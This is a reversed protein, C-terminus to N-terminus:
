GLEVDMATAVTAFDEAAVEFLGRRFPDGWRKEDPIFPFIDQRCTRALM